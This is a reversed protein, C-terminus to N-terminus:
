EYRTGKEGIMDKLEDLKRKNDWNTNTEKTSRGTSSTEKHEKIERKLKRPKRIRTKWGVIGINRLINKIYDKSEKMENRGYKFDIPIIKFTHQAENDHQKIKQNIEMIENALEFDSETNDDPVPSDKNEEIIAKEQGNIITLLVQQTCFSNAIKTCFANGYSHPLPHFNQKRPLNATNKGNELIICKEGYERVVESQSNIHDSGSVGLAELGWFKELDCSVARHDTLINMM